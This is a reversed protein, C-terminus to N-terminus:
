CNRDYLCHLLYTGGVQIAFVQFGDNCKGKDKKKLIMWLKVHTESLSIALVVDDASSVM